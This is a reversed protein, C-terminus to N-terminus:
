IDSHLTLANSDQFMRVLNSDAACQLADRSLASTREIKDNAPPAQPKTQPIIPHSGYPGKMIEYMFRKM